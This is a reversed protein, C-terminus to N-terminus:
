FCYRELIESNCKETLNDTALMYVATDRLISPNTKSCISKLEISLMNLAEKLKIDSTAKLTVNLNFNNEKESGKQASYRGSYQHDNYDTNYVTDESSELTCLYPKNSYLHDTNKCTLQTSKENSETTPSIVLNQFSDNLDQSLM